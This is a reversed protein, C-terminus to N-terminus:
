SLAYSFAGSLPAKKTSLPYHFTFSDTNLKACFHMGLLSRLAPAQGQRVQMVACNQQQAPEAPGLRGGQSR